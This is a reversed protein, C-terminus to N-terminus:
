ANLQSLMANFLAIVRDDNIGREALYEGFLESPNRGSRSASPPQTPADDPTHTIIVDVARPLISRVEDALGARLPENVRVKLWADTLTPAMVALEALSGEVNLLRDATTISVSRIKARSKAHAEVILVQPTNTGEGFDVQIPSGCYWAPCGAAVAQTRHLHGLAIYHAAVPFVSAPVAYEFISHAEREGGGFTANVITAHAVLISVADTTATNMLYDVLRRYNSAYENATKDGSLEFLDNARVAHRQSVFPLSAVRVLEGGRTTFEVVGGADPAKPHGLLHIGAAECLPTMADFAHPSDHNGAIVFVEAGTSRFDLLANWAVKQADPAPVSTEFVDGAVVVADVQERSAISAVETLVRTHEDIRSRGRLAKGIHWDGTHLLKVFRVTGVLHSLWRDLGM